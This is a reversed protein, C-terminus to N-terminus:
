FLRASKRSRSNPILGLIDQAEISRGKREFDDICIVTKELSLFALSDIMSRYHEATASSPLLPLTKKGLSKLLDATNSKFSEVTPKRGILRKDIMNEFHFVESRRSLKDRVSLCLFVKWAIKNQNKCCEPLYELCLNGLGWAGKISMVEPAEAPWFRSIQGQIIDIAM